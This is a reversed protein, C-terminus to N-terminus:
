KSLKFGAQIADTNLGIQKSTLDCWTSAILKEEESNEDKKYFSLKIVTKDNQYNVEALEVIYPSLSGGKYSLQKRDGQNHLRLNKVNMTQKGKTKIAIWGNFYRCKKLKHPINAKNGFVYNGEEDRAQDNIWIEDKTLKLSDTIYINKGTRRSPFFCAKDKMYGIYHDQQKIWYVACGPINRMDSPKLKALKEPYRHGDIYLSDVPFSYIDLQIAKEELNPRFTYLRQRYIKSPDADMYQKVYFVHKGFSPLNVRAFISHIHEHPHEAKDQKEQWVQQYNNFEGDFWTLMEQMEQKMKTPITEQAQLTALSLGFSIIMFFILRM